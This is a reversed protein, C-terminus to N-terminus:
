NSTLVKTTMKIESPPSPSSCKGFPNTISNETYSYNTASPNTCLCWGTKLENCAHTRISLSASTADQGCWVGGGPKAHHAPKKNMERILFRPKKHHQIQNRPSSLTMTRNLKKKDRSGLSPKSPFPLLLTPNLNRECGQPHHSPRHLM